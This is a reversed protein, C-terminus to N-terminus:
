AILAKIQRSKEAYKLVNKAEVTESHNAFGLKGINLM